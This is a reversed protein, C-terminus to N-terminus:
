KMQEVEKYLDNAENYKEIQKEKMEMLQTLFLHNETSIQRLKKDLFTNTEQLAKHESRICEYRDTMEILQTQVIEFM